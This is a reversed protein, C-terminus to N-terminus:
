GPPSGPARFQIRDTLRRRESADTDENLVIYSQRQKDPHEEPGALELELPRRAGAPALFVDTSEAGMAVRVEQGADALLEFEFVDFATGPLVHETQINLLHRVHSASGDAGVVFRARVEHVSEVMEESRAVPYGVSTVGLKEVSATVANEDQALDDLRHGWRVRVGRARLEEELLEELRDAQPLVLLFPSAFM